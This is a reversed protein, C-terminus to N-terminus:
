HQHERSHGAGAEAPLKQSHKRYEV